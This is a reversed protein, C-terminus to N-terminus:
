LQKLFIANQFQSFMVRKRTVPYASQPIQVFIKTTATTHTTLHTHPKAPSHISTLICHLEAQSSVCERLQLRLM